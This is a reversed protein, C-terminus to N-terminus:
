GRRNAEMVPNVLPKWSGDKRVCGFQNHTATVSDYMNTWNFLQYVFARHVKRSGAFKMLERYCWAQDYETPKYGDARVISDGIQGNLETAWLHKGGSMVLAGDITAGIYRTDVQYSPQYLHVTGADMWPGLNGVYPGSDKSYALAPGLVPIKSMQPHAKVKAYLAKTYEVLEEKWTARGSLNWENPGEIALIRWGYPAMQDLVNDINDIESARGAVMVWRLTPHISHVVDLRRAFGDFGTGPPCWEDRAYKAEMWKLYWGINETNGYQAKNLIHTCVGGYPLNNVLYHNALAARPNLALATGAAAGGLLLQRRNM